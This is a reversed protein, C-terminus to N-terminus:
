CHIIGRSKSHRPIKPSASALRNYGNAVVQLYVKFASGDGNMYTPLMKFEGCDMSHTVGTFATQTICRTFIVWGWGQTNASDQVRWVPLEVLSMFCTQIIRYKGFPTILDGIEATTTLNKCKHTNCKHTTNIGLASECV